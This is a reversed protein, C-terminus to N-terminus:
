RSLALCLSSVTAVRGGTWASHHVVFTWATLVVLTAKCHWELLLLTGGLTSNAAVTALAVLSSKEVPETRGLRLTDLAAWLLLVNVAVMVHLTFILSAFVTVFPINFAAVVGVVVVVVIVSGTTVAAVAVAVVVIVVVVIVVVVIVVVVVAVVVAVVVVVVVVVFSVASVVSVTAVVVSVVSINSITVSSVTACSVVFPSVTASSCIAGVNSINVVVSVLISIECDRSEVTELHEISGSSDCHFL